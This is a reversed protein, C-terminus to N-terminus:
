EVRIYLIPEMDDTEIMNCNKRFIFMAEDKFSVEHTVESLTDEPISRAFDLVPEKRM